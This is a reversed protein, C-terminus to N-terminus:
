GKVSGASLGQVMYRQALSYLIVVPITTMISAAFMRGWPFIDGIVLKALGVPLTQLSESSIFVFAFLFEDWAATVAFLGVAMLAPLMLPLIVQFFAQFHNAGDIM